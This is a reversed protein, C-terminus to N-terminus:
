IDTKNTSNAYRTGTCNSCTYYPIAVADTALDWSINMTSIATGNAAPDAWMQTTWLMGGFDTM